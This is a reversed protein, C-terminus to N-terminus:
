VFSKESTPQQELNDEDQIWKLRNDIEFGNDAEESQFDNQGINVDVTPSFHKFAIGLVFVALIFTVIFYALFAAKSNNKKTKKSGNPM